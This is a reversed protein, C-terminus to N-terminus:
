ESTDLLERSEVAGQGDKQLSGYTERNQLAELALEAMGYLVNLIERAEKDPMSPQELLNKLRTLSVM